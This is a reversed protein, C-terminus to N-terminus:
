RQNRFHFLVSFPWRHTGAPRSPAIPPSNWSFWFPLCYIATATDQTHFFLRKMQMNWWRLRGVKADAFKHAPRPRGMAEMETQVCLGQMAGESFFFTYIDLLKSKNWWLHGNTTRISQQHGDKRKFFFFYVAPERLHDPIDSRVPWMTLMRDFHLTKKGILINSM